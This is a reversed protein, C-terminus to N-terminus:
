SAKRIIQTRNTLQMRSDFLNQCALDIYDLKSIDIVLQTDLPVGDLSSALKPLNLFSAAGTLTLEVMGSTDKREICLKVRKSTTGLLSVVFGVGIGTLLDTLVITCLTVLFVLCEGRDKQWLKRIESLGLLKYGTLVLIAALSATSIFNLYQPLLAVFVLLWLGHLIASWRTQAGAQINATSRVIVGTMPLAGLYGCIVNGIGQAFLEKNYKTREGKHMQDTATSCLLTEASAVMGISLAAGILGWSLSSYDEFINLIHISEFFNDAITVKNIQIGFMLTVVIAIFVGILPGPVAKLPTPKYKDWAMISVIVLVGIMFAMLSKNEVSTFTSYLTEPIYALNKLGSGKPAMDMMVYFQSLLILAGIGSLMGKILAPSVARFWQGLKLLAALVQFLGALIVIVGLSKVGFSEVTQWVMVSLGAAPGSVQLPSGALMGVVLGGVIGTILGAAPPMGSAIAIGLCLPLAVLFVVVSAMWDNPRPWVFNKM